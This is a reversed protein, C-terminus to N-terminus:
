PALELLRIKWFLLTGLPLDLVEPEPLKPGFTEALYISNSNIAFEKAHRLTDFCFIGFSSDIATTVKGISYNLSLDSGFMILSTLTRILDHTIHCAKYVIM